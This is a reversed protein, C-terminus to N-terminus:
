GDYDGARREIIVGVERADRVAGPKGVSLKVWDRHFETIVIRALAEALTEVLRFESAEIFAILRQAVEHYNIADEISDSTAARAASTSFELDVAITQRVKREWDWIGIVAEVQLGRLFIIDM